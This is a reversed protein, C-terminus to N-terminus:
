ALSQKDYNERYSRRGKKIAAGWLKLAAEHGLEDRIEAVLAGLVM